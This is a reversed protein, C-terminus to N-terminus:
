FLESEHYIGNKDIRCNWKTASTWIYKNGYTNLEVFGKAILNDEVNNENTDNMYIKVKMGERLKIINGESDEKLDAKSLLVLDNEIIENFDVHISPETM